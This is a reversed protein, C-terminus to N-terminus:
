CTRPGRLDVAKDGFSAVRVTARRTACWIALYDEAIREIMLTRSIV